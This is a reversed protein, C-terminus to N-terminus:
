KTHNVINLLKKKENTFFNNLSKTNLKKFEAIKKRIIKSRQNMIKNLKKMHEKSQKLECEFYKIIKNNKIFYSHTDKMNKSGLVKKCKHPSHIEKNLDSISKTISKSMNTLRQRSVAKTVKRPLKSFTTSPTTGSSIPSTGTRSTTSPTTGSGTPSATSPTDGSIPSTGTGTPSTGTRSATTQTVTMGPTPAKQSGTVTKTVTAAPTATKTPSGLTSPAPMANMNPSGGMNPADSQVNELPIDNTINKEYEPTGVGFRKRSTRSTRSKVKNSNGFKYKRPPNPLKRPM